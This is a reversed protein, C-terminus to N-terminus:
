IPVLFELLSELFVSFDVSGFFTVLYRGMVTCNIYEDDSWVASILQAIMVDSILSSTVHFRSLVSLMQHLQTYKVEKKRVHSQNKLMSMMINLPSIWQSQIPTLPAKHMLPYLALKAKLIQVESM